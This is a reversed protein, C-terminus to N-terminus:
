DRDFKISETYFLAIIIILILNNQYLDNSIFELRHNRYLIGFVINSCILFNDRLHLLIYFKMLIYLSEWFYVSM